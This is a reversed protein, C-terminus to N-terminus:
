RKGIASRPMERARVEDLVEIEYGESKAAEILADLDKTPFKESFMAVARRKINGLVVSTLEVRDDATISPEGMIHNMMLLRLADDGPMVYQKFRGVLRIAASDFDDLGPAEEQSYLSGFFEKAQEITLDSM